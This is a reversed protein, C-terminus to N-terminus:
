GVDTLEEPRRPRVDGPLGAEENRRRAEDGCSPCVAVSDRESIWLENGPEWQHEGFGQKCIPCPIWFHGRIWAWARHLLRPIYM